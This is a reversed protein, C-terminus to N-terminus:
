NQVVPRAQQQKAYQTPSCGRQTKFARVFSPLDAYGLREAIESVMLRGEDLWRCARQHRIDNALKRFSTGEAALHRALTSGSVQVINALTEQTPQEGHSEQLMMGVWATWSGQGPTLCLRQTLRKRLEALEGPNHMPSPTELIDRDLRIRLSLLGPVDFHCRAKTLRSYLAAHPPAPSTFYADYGPMKDGLLTSLHTDIAGVSIDFAVRLFDYPVPRIPLWCLEIQDAEQKVQMTFSPSILPYFEASCLLVERVNACSLMARGVDGLAGFNVMKGVLLGVESRGLKAALARFLALARVPAMQTEPHAITQRDFDFEALVPTCDIGEKELCEALLHIYRGPSNQSPNM